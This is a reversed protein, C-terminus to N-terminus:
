RCGGPAGGGRVERELAREHEAKASFDRISKGGALEQEMKKQWIFSRRPATPAPRGTRWTADQRRSHLQCICALTRPSCPLL